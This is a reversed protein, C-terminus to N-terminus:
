AKASKVAGQFSKPSHCSLPSSLVISTLVMQSNSLVRKGMTMDDTKM